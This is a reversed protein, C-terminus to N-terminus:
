QEVVVARGRERNRKRKPRRPGIGLGDDEAPEEDPKPVYPGKNKGYRPETADSPLTWRQGTSRKQKDAKLRDRHAQAARRNQARRRAKAREARPLRGIKLAESKSLKSKKTM